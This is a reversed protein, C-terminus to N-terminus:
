SNAESARSMKVKSFKKFDIFDQKDSNFTVGLKQKAKLIGSSTVSAVVYIVELFIDSYANIIVCRYNIGIAHSIADTEKFFFFPLFTGFCYHSSQPLNISILPAEM